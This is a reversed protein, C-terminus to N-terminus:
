FRGTLHSNGECGVPKIVKYQVGAEGGYVNGSFREIAMGNSRILQIVKKFVVKNKLFFVLKWYIYNGKGKYALIRQKLNLVFYGM